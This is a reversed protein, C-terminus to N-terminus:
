HKRLMMRIDAIAAGKGVEYSMIPNLDVDQIEELDLMLKSVNLLINILAEKDRPKMGRYGELIKAAKIETLMSEADYKTLPAIRFSVDKIVEVFIGGLGFMVVPGFTPDRTAGVIVELGDPVMQQVLIGVIKAKPAKQRVNNMIEKFGKRVDHVNRINLIVGGVDSKHIIDPSIIKLVIPYGIKEAIEVAEDETRALGVKPVPLNYAKAIEYAEHEYLKLRGESFARDIISKLSRM